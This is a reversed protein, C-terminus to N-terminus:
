SCTARPRISCASSSRSWRRQRSSRAWCRRPPRRGSCSIATPISRTRTRTPKPVFSRPKWSPSSCAKDAMKVMGENFDRYTVGGLMTSARLKLFAQLVADALSMLKMDGAARVAWKIDTEDKQIAPKKAFEELAKKLAPETRKDRFSGLLKILSVRTKTDMDTYSDVYTKTLPDVIKGLLAQVEASDTKGGSKNTTDDFFQELRKIARPRWSSDSLKDVWYEPQSEDKCGVLTTSASTVVLVAPASTLVLSRILSALARPSRIM